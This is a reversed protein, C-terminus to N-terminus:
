AGTFQAVVADLCKNAAKQLEENNAYDGRIAFGHYMGTYVNVTAGKKRLAEQVEEKFFDDGDISHYVVNCGKAKANTFSDASGHVGHCSAAQVFNGTKSLQDIACGGWCFGIMCLKECGMDRLHEVCANVRKHFGVWYKEGTIEGWWNGWANGELADNEFETAPWGDLSVLEHYLNPMVSNFGHSAFHDAIYKSNPINFGFIDHIVLVGIKKAGDGANALYAPADDITIEEGKLLGSDRIVGVCCPGSKEADAM